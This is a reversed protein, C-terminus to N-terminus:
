SSVLRPSQVTEAAVTRSFAVPSHGFSQGSGPTEMPSHGFSQGSGPTEGLLPCRSLIDVLPRCLKKFSPVSYIKRSSLSRPM